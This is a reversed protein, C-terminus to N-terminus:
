KTCTTHHDTMVQRNQVHVHHIIHWLWGQTWCSTTIMMRLTWALHFIILMHTSCPEHYVVISVNFMQNEIYFIFFINTIICWLGIPLMNRRTFQRHKILLWSNSYVCIYRYCTSTSNNDCSILYFICIYKMFIVTLQM